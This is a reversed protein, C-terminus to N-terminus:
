MLSRGSNKYWNWHSRRVDCRWTTFNLDACGRRLGRPPFSTNGGKSSLECRISHGSLVVNVQAASSQDQKVSLMHAFPAFRAGPM